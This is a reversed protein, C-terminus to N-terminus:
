GKVGEVCVRRRDEMSLKRQGCSGRSDRSPRAIALRRSSTSAAAGLTTVGSRHAATLAAGMERVQRPVAEPKARTRRFLCSLISSSPPAAEWLQQVSDLSFLRDPTPEKESRTWTLHKTLWAHSLL